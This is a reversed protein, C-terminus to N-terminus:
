ETVAEGGAPTLLAQLRNPPTSYSITRVSGDAFLFNCQTTHGSGWNERIELFTGRADRVLNNGKRATSDSGGLFYPEDWYWSGTLAYNLDVAKEGVLITNSTGDSIIAMTLYTPRTPFLRANGAYDTKAWTWGGGVYDARDDANAVLAQPSRRAPCSYVSLATQWARNRFADNQEIYPLIAYAWSGTQDRLSRTPDGVGWKWTGSVYDVTAVTIQKGNVDKIQQKGDYGGNSPFSGRADHFHHLALGIERLNSACRSRNASARVKQVAGLILGTLIGIIAIVVLLELLTFARNRMRVESAFEVLRISRYWAAFTSDGLGGGCVL